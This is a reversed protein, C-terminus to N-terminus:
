HSLPVPWSCAYQREQIDLALQLWETVTPSTGVPLASGANGGASRPTDPEGERTGIIDMVKIDDLRTAEAYHMQQEWENIDAPSIDSMLNEYYESASASMAVAHV